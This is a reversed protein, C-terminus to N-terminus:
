VIPFIMKQIKLNRGASTLKREQKRNAHFLRTNFFIHIGAMIVNKRCDFYFFPSVKNRNCTTYLDCRIPFSQGMDGM